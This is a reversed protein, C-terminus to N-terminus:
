LLVATISSSIPTNRKSTTQSIKFKEDVSLATDKTATWATSAAASVSTSVQYKEDLQKAQAAVTNALDKGSAIFSAFLGGAPKPSTTPTAPKAPADEVHPLARVSIHNNDVM